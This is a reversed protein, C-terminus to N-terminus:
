PAGGADGLICRKAGNQRLPICRRGVDCDKDVLCEERCAGERCILDGPCQSAYECPAGSAADATAAAALGGDVLEKKDACVGATCLQEKPCDRETICADRCQGDNACVQIEGQCDSNRSCNRTDLTQCVFFPKTSQVCREGNPCDSSAKCETHCKQFACILPANCDSSLSCASKLPAAPSEDVCAFIFVTAAIAATATFMRARYTFIPVSM